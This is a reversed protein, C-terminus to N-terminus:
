RKDDVHTLREAMQLPLAPLLSFLRLYITQLSLRSRFVRQRQTDDPRIARVIPAGGDRLMM